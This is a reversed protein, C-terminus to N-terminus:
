CYLDWWGGGGTTESALGWVGVQCSGGGGCVWGGVVGEFLETRCSKGICLGGEVSHGM